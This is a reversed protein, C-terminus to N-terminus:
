TAAGHSWHGGVVEIRSAHVGEFLRIRGSKALLRLNYSCVSTSPIDCGVMIERITPSNGDHESKFGVIFNFLQNLDHRRM